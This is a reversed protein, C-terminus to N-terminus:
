ARCARGERAPEEAMAAAAAVVHEMEYGVGVREVAVPWGGDVRYITARATEPDLGHSQGLVLLGGPEVARLCNRVVVAVRADDFNDRTAINMARVCTARWPLPELVDAAEFRFPAGARMLRLCRSVMFPLRRVELRDEVHPALYPLREVDLRALVRQARPVLWRTSWAKLARNVPYAWSEAIQGPLVFPGLVHQIVGGHVDLVIAWPRRPWSFAVLDRYLDTALLEVAFHAALTDYLEVSTIGTSAGLDLVSVRSGPARTARLLRLLVADVRALRGAATQKWTGNPLRVRAVLTDYAQAADEGARALDDLLLLSAHRESGLWTRSRGLRGVRTIGLKLV